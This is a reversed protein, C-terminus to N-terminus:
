LNEITVRLCPNNYPILLHLKRVTNGKRVGWHLHMSKKRAKETAAYSFQKVIFIFLGVCLHIRRTLTHACHAQPVSRLPYLEKINPKM